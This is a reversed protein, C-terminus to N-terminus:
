RCRDGVRAASAGHEGSGAAAGPIPRGAHGPHSRYCTAVGGRDRQRWQGINPKSEASPKSGGSLAAAAAPLRGRSGPDAESGAARRAGGHGSADISGAQVVKLGEEPTLGASRWARVLATASVRWDAGRGAELFPSQPLDLWRADAAAGPMAAVPVAESSQTAAAEHASVAGTLGLSVVLAVLARKSASRPGVLAMRLGPQTLLPTLNRM